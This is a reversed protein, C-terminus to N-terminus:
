SFAMVGQLLVTFVVYIPMLCTGRWSSPLRWCTSITRAAQAYRVSSADAAASSTEPLWAVVGLASCVTCHHQATAKWCLMAHSLM